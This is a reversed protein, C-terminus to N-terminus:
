ELEVIQGERPHVAEVNLNDRLRQALFMTAKPEGMVTFVKKLTPASKSVFDVLGDSDKHSSYGSVTFIQAKVPVREGEIKVERSGEEIARGITGLAQFGIFLIANKPDPLYEKEHWIIRGGSSMGSSAIIVKPGPVKYIQKSELKSYTRILKPFDFIDDGALIRAQVKENFNKFQKAYIDTLRIGLPSDFFVPVQPIEGGEILHNMEHLLVQTKELSFVPILLTGKRQIITTLVEKLKSLRLDKSEHNRDGYTSEMILYNADTIDETDKMLPTPTNGLDGTFVIKNGSERETLCIMASGLIHGADKLIVSFDDNLKMETHYNLTEWISLAGEVDKKEYLPVLNNKRSEEENISAADDLMVASIERTTPTSIIKGSFGDKVLKPVRGIHDIHAHTIFLYDIDKPDYPFPRRNPDNESEFRQGQTLGCDVLIRVDSNELLFNAGTVTGTGSYFHL